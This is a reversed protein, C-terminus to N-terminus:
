KEKKKVGHPLSSPNWVPQDLKGGLRMELIGALPLPLGLPFFRVRFDMGSDALNIKGKAEVKASSGTILLPGPDVVLHKDHLVFDAQLKDFKYSILPLTLGTLEKSLLSLMNVKALDPDTLHVSGKGEFSTFDEPRGTAALRFTEVTAKENSDKPPPKIKGVMRPSQSLFQLADKKNLGDLALSIEMPSQDSGTQGLKIWGEGKGGAFKFSLPKITFAAGNADLNLDLEQLPIKQYAAQKALCRVTYTDKPDQGVFDPPDEGYIVGSSFVKAPKPIDFDVLANTVEEGFLKGATGPLLEGQLSFRQSTLRNRKTPHLIWGISGEARGNQFNAQLDFLETYKPIGRLRGTLKSFPVGKYSASFIEANGFIDRRTLDDWRGELSFDAKVPLGTFKFKEWLEDWWEMMWPNIQYPFFEGGLWLRYDKTALNQVLSGSVSGPKLGITFNELVLEGPNYRGSADVGSLPVDMVMSQGTGLRFNAKGLKWGNEMEVDLEGEIPSLFQVGELYTRPIFAHLHRSDTPHLQILTSASATKEQLDISSDLALYSLDLGLTGHLDLKDQTNMRINGIFRGVPENQFHINTTSVKADFPFVMPKGQDLRPITYQLHVQNARFQKRFLANDLKAVLPANFGFDEPDSNFRSFITINGCNFIDQYWAGNATLEIDTLGDNSASVHLTPSDFLDFYPKLTYLKSLLLFGKALFAQQVPQEKKPTSIPIGEPFAGSITSNHLRFSLDKLQWDGANLELTCSLDHIITEHTGTPSHLAPCYVKANKLHLESIRPKGSLLSNPAIGIRVEEVSAVPTANASAQRIEINHCSFANWPAFAIDGLQVDLDLNRTQTAIEEQLQNRLLNPKQMLLLLVSQGLILIALIGNVLHTVIRDM